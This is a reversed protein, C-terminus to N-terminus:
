ASYERIQKILVFRENSTDWDINAQHQGFRFKLKTNKVSVLTLQELNKYFIGSYTNSSVYWRRIIQNFDSFLQLSFGAFVMYFATYNPNCVYRFSCLAGNDTIKLNSLQRFHNQNAKKVTFIEMAFVATVTEVKVM